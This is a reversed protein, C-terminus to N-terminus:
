QEYKMVEKEASELVDIMSILASDNVSLTRLSSDQMVSLQITDNTLRASRVVSLAPLKPFRM